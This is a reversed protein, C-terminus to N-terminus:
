FTKKVKQKECWGKKTKTVKLDFRTSFFIKLMTSCRQRSQHGYLADGGGWFFLPLIGSFLKVATKWGFFFNQKKEFEKVIKTKVVVTREELFKKNKPQFVATFGKLPIKGRKKPPPPRHAKQNGFDGFISM